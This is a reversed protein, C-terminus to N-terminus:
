VELWVADVVVWWWVVFGVVMAGEVDLRRFDRLIERWKRMPLM